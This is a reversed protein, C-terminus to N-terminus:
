RTSNVYQLITADDKSRVITAPFDGYNDAVAGENDTIHVLGLAGLDQVISIKDDTSYDNDNIGDCIVINGKVKNKDLSDSHCQRCKVFLIIM